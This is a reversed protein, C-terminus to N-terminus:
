ASVESPVVAGEGAGGAEVGSGAAGAAALEGGGTLADAGGATGVGIAAAAALLDEDAAVGDLVAHGQAGGAELGEVLAGAASTDDDGAV